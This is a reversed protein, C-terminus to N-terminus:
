VVKQLLGGKRLSARSVNHEEPSAPLREEINKKKEMSLQNMMYQPVGGLNQVVQHAASNFARAFASDSHRHQHELEYNVYAAVAAVCGIGEM